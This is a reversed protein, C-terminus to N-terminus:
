CVPFLFQRYKTASRGGRKHDTQFSHHYYSQGHRARARGGNGPWTLGVLDEGQETLAGTNKRNEGWSKTDESSIVTQQENGEKGEHLWKQKMGLKREARRKNFLGWLRISGKEKRSSAPREQIESTPDLPHKERVM